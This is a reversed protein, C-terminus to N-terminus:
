NNEDSFPTASTTDGITIKETLNIADENFIKPDPQPFDVSISEVVRVEASRSDEGGFITNGVFFSILLSLSAILILMAIDAQKM